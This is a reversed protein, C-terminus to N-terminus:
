EWAGKGSLVLPANDVIILIKIKTPHKSENNLSGDVRLYGTFHPSEEGLITLLGM